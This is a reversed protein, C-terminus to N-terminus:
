GHHVQGIHDLAEARDHFSYAVEEIEVARLGHRAICYRCVWVPPFGGVKVPVPQDWPIEPFLLRLQSEAIM